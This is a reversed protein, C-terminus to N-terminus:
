NLISKLSSLFIEMQNPLGISVRLYNQLLNTEFYRTIIGQQFLQQYVKKASYGNIKLLIFNAKSEIPELQPFNKLKIFTEERTQCITDIKQQFWSYNQLCTAAASEVVVNINYPYKLSFFQKQLEPKLLAYGLRLGALAFAKSFTRLIILNKHKKLYPLYTQGSFEFYAEDVIILSNLSLFFELEEKSVLNGSPNNPSCLFIATPEKKKYQQSAKLDISFDHHRKGCLLSHNNLKILHEFYSFTPPFVLVSSKEPLLRCILDLLEDSGNGVLVCEPSISVYNAILERIKEQSADPYLEWNNFCSNDLIETPFGYPNENADLKIIAEPKIKLQQAIKKVTAVAQYPKTQFFLPKFFKKRM